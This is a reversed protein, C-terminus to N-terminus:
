QLDNMNVSDVSSIVHTKASAYIRAPQNSIQLMEDLQHDGKLIRKLSQKDETVSYTGKEM